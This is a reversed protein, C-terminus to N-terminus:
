NSKILYPHLSNLDYWYGKDDTKWTILGNDRASRMKEKNWGTLEIIVSSKVWKQQPGKLAKLERELRALRTEVSIM